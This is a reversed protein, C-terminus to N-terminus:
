KRLFSVNATYNGLTWRGSIKSASASGLKLRADQISITQGDFTGNRRYTPTGGCPGATYRIKKGKGTITLNGCQNTTNPFTGVYVGESLEFAYAPSAVMVGVALGAVVFHRMVSQAKAMPKGEMFIM